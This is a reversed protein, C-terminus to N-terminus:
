GLLVTVGDATIGTVFGVAVTGATITLAGAAALYVAKGIDAEVATLLAAPVEVEAGSSVPIGIVQKASNDNIFNPADAVMAGDADTNDSNNQAIAVLTASAAGAVTWLGTAALALMQGFVVSGSTLDRLIQREGFGQVVNLENKIAAM